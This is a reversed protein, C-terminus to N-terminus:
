TIIKRIRLSILSQELNVKQGGRHYASSHAVGLIKGTMGADQAVLAALESMGADENQCQEMLKILIQPMTPLRAASLRNKIEQESLHM